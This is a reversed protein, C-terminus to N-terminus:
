FLQEEGGEGATRELLKRARGGLEGLDVRGKEADEAVRQAFSLADDLLRMSVVAEQGMERMISRETRSAVIPEAIGEVWVKTRRGDGREGPGLPDLAYIRDARVYKGFGLFVMKPADAM